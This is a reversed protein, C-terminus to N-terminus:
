RAAREEVRAKTRRQKPNVAQGRFPAPTFAAEEAIRRQIDAWISAVVVMRRGAEVYSQWRGDKCKDYGIDRGHGVMKCAEDLPVALPEVDPRKKMRM